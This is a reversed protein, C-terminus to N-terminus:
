CIENENLDKLLEKFSPLLNQRNPVCIERSNTSLNIQPVIKVHNQTKNDKIQVDVDLNDENKQIIQPNGSL